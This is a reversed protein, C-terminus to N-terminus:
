SSSSSALDGFVRLRYVCGYDSGGYNSLLRFAVFKFGKDYDNTDSTDDDIHAFDQNAQKAQMSKPSIINVDDENEDDEDMLPIGRQVEGIIDEISVYDRDMAAAEGNNDDEDHSSASSSSSSARVNVYQTANFYQTHQQDYYNYSFNGLSYWKTRNYSAFIQFDKPAANINLQSLAVSHYHYLAIQRIFIPQYLEITIYANSESDVDFQLPTCDGPKYSPRIAQQNYASLVSRMVWHAYERFVDDNEVKLKSHATVRYTWDISNTPPVAANVNVNAADSELDNESRGYFVGGNNKYIGDREDDIALGSDDIVHNTAMERALEQAITQALDNIKADVREVVSDMRADIRDDIENWDVSANVNHQQQQQQQQQLGQIMEFILTLKDDDAHQAAGATAVVPPPARVQSEIMDQLRHMHVDFYDTLAEASSQQQQVFQTQVWQKFEDNDNTIRQLAGYIEENQRVSEEDEDDGDLGNSSDTTTSSSSPMSCIQVIYDERMDNIDLVDLCSFWGCKELKEIGLEGNAVNISLVKAKFSTDESKSGENIKLIQGIGIRRWDISSFLVWEDYVISPPTKANNSDSSSTVIDDNLTHATVSTPDGIIPIPTPILLDDITDYESVVEQVPVTQTATAAPRSVIDDDNFIPPIVAPKAIPVHAHHSPQVTGTDDVFLTSLAILVLLGLAVIIFSRSTSDMNYMVYIKLKGGCHACANYTSLTLAILRHQWSKSENRDLSCRLPIVNDM